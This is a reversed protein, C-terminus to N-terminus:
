PADADPVSEPRVPEATTDIAPTGHAHAYRALARDLLHELTAREEASLQAVLARRDIGPREEVLELIEKARGWGRDLLLEAARLRQDINPRPPPGPANRGNMGPLPLPEGNMVATLFDIYVQGDQSRQRIYKALTLRSTAQGLPNGSQGPKWLPALHSPRRLPSSADPEPEM